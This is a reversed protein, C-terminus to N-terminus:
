IYYSCYSSGNSSFQKHILDASQPIIFCCLAKKIFMYKFVIVLRGYIHSQACEHMCNIKGKLTKLM